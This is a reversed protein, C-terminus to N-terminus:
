ITAIARLDRIQPVKSQDTGTMIIKIQYGNFVPLNRATYEYTNFDVERNSSEVFKDPLGSNRSPNIVNGLSDLNNYGPFLEFLQNEDPTDNRLLRYMVIIENTQHRYADFIVKISDASRELKVIKSVYIASNPDGILKNVSSDSIFDLVPKDIKNMSTIISVRDLDIVPSVRPDSTSLVLELTLSKKGPLNTLKDDENLKSAMLRVDPLINNSTLSINEFGKDVFSVETGDVSTGSVTRLRSNISTSNPILTQVLPRIVSFAINKSAKPGKSLSNNSVSSYSGGSKSERFYLEPFSNSNGTSRDSGSSSQDIKIHYSDISTTYNEIETTMLNHQKNIRRLSIGNFEYKFVLDNLKHADPVSNDIGRTIGTLENGSIGTYRIVESNILAYGPNLTSVGVNEFTSFESSSVLTINSTSTSSYNASLSTPTIDSEVGTISVINNQSYMGHNNQIVKIHLGDEISQSNIVFGGSITSGASIISNSSTNETDIKGQINDLILSNYSSIGATSDVTLILNKGYGGTQSNTSLTLTDGEKYGFGGDTVSAIAVSNENVYITVKANKGYGTLSQLEVNTYPGGSFGTGVNTLSLSTSGIGISGVVDILKATFNSNGDQTITNGKVLSLLDSGTLSKGLGVLSSRSYSVISNADLSSIQNNGLGLSPNYFRVTAPNLTFNARYLTFKLDDLPSPQWTGGNQSKYLAGLAPQQSVVSSSSVDSETIRSIWVSYLDSPSTIVIAYTKGGELYVPSDFVFPTAISADDSVSVLSPSLIKESFPLVIPSPIGAQVQRIQLSVPINNTDKSKFFIDCQTLYVGNPDNVEFTQALPDSWRNKDDEVSPKEISLNRLSLSTGETNGLLGGSIFNVEAYSDTSTNVQSNTSSTTLVLTKTGTTFTPSSPSSPDPIFLSGIFDGNSDSIIRIDTITATANSTEGVLNMGTSVFGYFDSILQSGLSATDINLISTTGSYSSSIVLGANYPNNSYTETPQNYPGFKHNQAALRFRIVKNGFKGSVTEGVVFTGGSMKVELLKPIIYSKVDVNDFFANFSTNPKLKRSVIEINRSRMLTEVSNSIIKNDSNYTNSDSIGFQIGQRSNSSALITTKNSFSIQESKNSSTNYKEVNYASNKVPTSKNNPSLIIGNNLNVLSPGNASENSGAWYTEWSDWVLPSFGSDKLSDLKEFNDDMIKVPQNQYVWTDSSPSLNISGYWNQTNLPNVSETRTAFNNKQYEVSQYNLSVIDGTKKINASGLDNVFNLDVSPNPEQNIGVISESGLILDISTTYHQPRLLGNAIDISSKYDSTFTDGGDWSKFNDVFFGCKFRDLGTSSDRITLNQTDTELLSLSTYYEVNSIREELRSIDKMTYRKHKLSSVKADSIDFLYSPLYITAVEMGLDTDNPPLPTLSSVGKTLAFSGDKTLFLKDIRPLYYEYSLIVSKDPSFIKESSNTLSTFVRSSYEFPSKTGSYPSVRPRLDIIDSVRRGDVSPINSTYREADYSNVSVFDGDDASDITYNNYIVKIKRTPPQVTQKRIIRSFDLYESRQGDDFVFSKKISRDGTGYSDITALIRSEELIINEGPNFVSDNLYVFEIKSLGVNTNVLVAVAGSEEGIIREGRIANSLNSNLNILIAFPTQPEFTSSSEIIDIVSEVDPINLSIEKDQVRLGYISSYTLGDNLTTQGIGSSPSSSGSITLTGCRNYIKKRTKANTKRWTVTLLASGSSASLGSLTVTKGFVSIKQDTLSEVVGTSIYTLNYDEEDFPELNLEGDTEPLTGNYGNGSIQITYSKRFVVNSDKLDLSSINDNNLNVYLYSNLSDSINITVKSLDSVAIDSQPLSGDCVNSISPVSEVNLQKLNSNISIVRNYTPLIASSKTYSIIDGVKLGYAFNEKASFITGFGSVTASNTLVRIGDLIPDATFSTSVGSSVGYNTIQHVDSLDYDKTSTITRGDPNGNILIQEGSYFSGSVQYLSLETSASVNSVLYGFAGSNKGEIRSPSSLTIETSLTLNTYTQVDYLSLEFKTSENTYESSKLKLSYVRAVGIETGSSIGATSTRKDYLSVQSTSGFGVPLSGYVNNIEINRGVNFPLSQNSKKETDRPKEIDILNTSITEVEFGSVYAKGPGVSICMLNDSPVNGNKTIQGSQYIGNNGVLDNLSERLNLSFPKIYYDGSEDKTRRAFEDRIKSYETESVFKEIIGDNVRLLEIFDDDNFDTVSKKILTLTIRLRDAGPASFNSFGRANDYLDDYDNSAVAIEESVLLGVRYSPSNTYQDLIVSQKPVTVFYGRVFYVGEEIKAASGTAVSSSILTTAFTTNNRITSLAYDVDELAILNEGNVFTKTSFDIDSSSQYKVYLTYVGQESQTNLIYNEVKAVVGSIEGKIRKGIFKDIYASVPIGLHTDDIKVCTYNSDYGIQGPIVVSGEKFFHQGFKEIQNQLISQLTTLERSQIPTGPKFLVKKYGKQPDFDDFYPSVNLNTNQPM